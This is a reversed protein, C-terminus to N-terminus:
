LIEPDLECMLLLQLREVVASRLLQKKKFGTKKFVNENSIAMLCESNGHLHQGISEERKHIIKQLM